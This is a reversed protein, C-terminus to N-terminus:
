LNFRKSMETIRDVWNEPYNGLQLYENILKKAEAKEGKKALTIGVFLNTDNCYVPDIKGFVLVDKVHKLKNLFPLISNDLDSNIKQTTSEFTDKTLQYNQSAVGNDILGSSHFRISCNNSRILKPPNEIFMFKYYTENYIGIELWFSIDNLSNWSSKHIDFVILFDSEQRHFTNGFVKFGNEKLKPKIIENLIQKFIDKM